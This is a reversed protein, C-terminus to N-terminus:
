KGEKALKKRIVKVRIGAVFLDTLVVFSAVNFFMDAFIDILGSTEFSDMIHRSSFYILGAYVLMLFATLVLFATHKKKGTSEEAAAKMILYRSILEFCVSVFVVVGVVIWLAVIEVEPLDAFQDALEMISESNTVMLLVTQLMTWVAFMFVGIGSFALTNECRRLKLNLEDNKLKVKEETDM